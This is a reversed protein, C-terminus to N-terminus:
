QVGREPLHQARVDLLRAAYHLRATQAEVERVVGGHVAGLELFDLLQHIALDESVRFDGGVDQREFLRDGGARHREEAFLVAFLHTHDAHRSEAALQAAARMDPASAIDTNALDDVLAANRRSDAADFRDGAFASQVLILMRDIRQAFYRVQQLCALGVQDLVDLLYDGVLTCLFFLDLLQLTLERRRRYSRQFRLRARHVTRPHQRRADVAHVAGLHPREGIRQAVFPLATHHYQRRDFIGVDRDDCGHRFVERGFYMGTFQGAGHRLGDASFAAPTGIHRLRAAFVGRTQVGRQSRYVGFDLRFELTNDANMQTCRRDMHM